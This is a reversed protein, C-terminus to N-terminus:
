ATQIVAQRGGSYDLVIADGRDVGTAENWHASAVVRQPAGFLHDAYWVPYIGLDLLAGGGLAPNNIRHEPDSSLKQTHDVSLTRVEGIAGSSIVQDIRAIHPLYRSWMAELVVVGREAAAKVVRRAEAANITFPKEVMVHKGARIALEAHQAHFPHPSAVYVVDVDPDDVLEQYSGYARPADYIAAFNRASEESRSGVAEIRIEHLKLDDCFMRAVWGTGLIGWRIAM